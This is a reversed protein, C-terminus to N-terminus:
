LSQVASGVHGELCPRRVADTDRRLMANQLHRLDDAPDVGLENRLAQAARSWTQFAGDVDGALYRARVLNAWSAERLPAVSLVDNIEPLLDTTAGLMIRVAALREQVSLRLEGLTELRSRLKASATCDLGIPGRWLALAETLTREADAYREERRDLDGRSSLRRFQTVDLEAGEARLAYGTSGNGRLTVLRAALLPCVASLQRRLHAIHVRLNSTASRPPRDWLSEILLNTPVARGEELMLAALLGRVPASAVTVRDGDKEIEFRGLMRLRM